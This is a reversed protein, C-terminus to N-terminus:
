AFVEPYFIKALEEVADANRVGQRELMDTDITYVKGNKVASLNTYPETTIFSDYAWAPVIIIDPDKELLLDVSYSWGEVDEAINKGGALTIIQNIYTDAGCTYDGYEGFSVVYYVSPADTTVETLKTQVGEIKAKMEAIAQEAQENANVAQGFMRIMNYVGETDREENLCIVTIGLGSLQEYSEKSFVSSTIVIDPNLEVIKEVSPTDIAGVSEIALCAEPYNCYDTRGILRNELGLAYVLETIAPGCSVITAPEKEITVTNGYSDTFELPYTTQGEQVTDSSVQETDSTSVASTETEIETVETTTTIEAESTITTDQSDKCGVALSIMTAIAAVLATAKKFHNM